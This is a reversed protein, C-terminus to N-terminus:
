FERYGSSDENFKNINESKGLSKEWIKSHRLFVYFSSNVAIILGPIGDMFGLKWLYCELFKGCGHLLGLAVYGSSRKKSHSDTFTTSFSNITQVQDSLDRYVYHLIPHSLPRVTGVVKLSEHIGDGIWEASGRRVLRVKRDPFWGGHRIWRGLFWSLRPLSFGKVDPSASNLADLIENRSEQSLSEDADLSLIWDGTALGMAYQKQASYGEWSHFQVKVGRSECIEVTGDSSGSDLVIVEDAFSVSDLLDPIRDAENKAIVVVSLTTKKCQCSSNVIM